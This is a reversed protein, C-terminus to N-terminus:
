PRLGDFVDSAHALFRVFVRALLAECLLQAGIQLPALFLRALAARILGTAFRVSIAM